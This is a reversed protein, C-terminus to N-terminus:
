QVDPTRGSGDVIKLMACCLKRCSTGGRLAVIWGHTTSTSARILNIDRRAFFTLYPVMACKFGQKTGERLWGSDEANCLIERKM